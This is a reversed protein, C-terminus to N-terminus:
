ISVIDRDHIYPKDDDHQVGINLPMCEVGLDRELITQVQQQEAAGRCVLQASGDGQSGIGKGGWILQQIPEYTLLRQLHPATLESPCQPRALANFNHQSQRMLAGLRQAVLQPETHLSTDSSSPSAAKSSKPHHYYPDNTLVFLADNVVKENVPGLLMHVGEETPTKAVPYAKNLDALIKKTDQVARCCCLCVAAASPSMLEVRAKASM